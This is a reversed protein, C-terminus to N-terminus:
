VKKVNKLLNFPPSQLHFILSPSHSFLLWISYSACSPLHACPFCNLFSLHPTPLTPPPLVSLFHCFMPSASSLTSPFSRLSLQESFFSSSMSSYSFSSPFLVHLSTYLFPLCPHTSSMSSFSMSPFLAPFPLDYPPFSSPYLVHLLLFSSPYVLLFLLTSPM